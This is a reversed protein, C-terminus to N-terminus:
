SQYPLACSLYESHPAALPLSLLSPKQNQFRLWRTSFPLTLPLSLSLSFSLSLTLYHLLSLHLDPRSSYSNSTWATNRLHFHPSHLSLSNSLFLSLCLIHSFTLSVYSSLLSSFLGIEGTKRGFHDCHEDRRQFIKSITILRSTLLHEILLNAIITYPSTHFLYTNLCSITMTM